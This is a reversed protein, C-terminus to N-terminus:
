AFPDDDDDAAQAAPVGAGQQSKFTDQVVYPKNDRSTKVEINVWGSETAKAESLLHELDEVNLGIKTITGYKTDINRSSGIFITGDESKKM